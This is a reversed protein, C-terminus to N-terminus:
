TLVCVLGAHMWRLSLSQSETLRLHINVNTGKDQPVQNQAKTKRM